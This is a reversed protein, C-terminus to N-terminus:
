SMSIIDYAVDHFFLALFPYIVIINDFFIIDYMIDYNKIDHMIHYLKSLIM